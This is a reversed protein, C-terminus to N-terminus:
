SRLGIHRFYNKFLERSIVAPGIGPKVSGSEGQGVYIIPTRGANEELAKVAREVMEENSVPNPKTPERTFAFDRIPKIGDDVIIPMFQRASTCSLILAKNRHDFAITLPRQVAHVGILGGTTLWLFLPDSIDELVDEIVLRMMPTLCM